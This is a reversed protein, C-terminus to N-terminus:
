RKPMRNIKPRWPTKLNRPATRIADNLKEKYKVHYGDNLDLANDNRVKMKMRWILYPLLIDFRHYDLADGDSNISTAVTAYDLYVGKGHADAGPVPSVDLSGERVTFYRPEGDVVNQYLTVGSSFAQEISGTGSAPIGTLTNTSKATYTFSYRTGSDYFYITGSDAFDAANTLDIATEGVSGAEAATTIAVEDLEEEFEIPDLYTLKKGEDGIRVALISRNSESDYIDSPLSYEYDGATLTTLPYNFNYHEAWRLQKGEIERIGETLWSYCDDLSLIDSLTTKLERLAKDIAYGVTNTAWGTSVLADTYDGFTGAISDKYRAFFYGEVSDTVKFRQIRTDPQIAVIGSGAATTLNSKSAGAANDDQSLHIQDHKIIYVKTGAAHARATNAVLTVTTGSPATATHTKVIEANENGMEELLVIQNIAFGEINKVTLTGSGSAADSTLYTEQIASEQLPTNDIFLIGYKYRIVPNM